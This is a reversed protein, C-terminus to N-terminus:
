SKVSMCYLVIGAAVGVNLSECKESMKINLKMDCLALLGDDVGEGENGILLARKKRFNAATPCIGDKVDTGIIQYNQTKLKIIFDELPSKIINIHFIMGQTAQIVKLNYPDVGAGLVATDAGFATASRIITGLNGPHHIQDALLISEGPDTPEKQTCIGMIKTPTALSSLKKMVDRTVQYSPVGFDASKETTIVERLCNAKQAERVLHYGEVIFLRKMDREVRNKLKSWQLVRFNTVSNIM